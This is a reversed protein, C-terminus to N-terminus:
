ITRPSSRARKSLSTALRYRENHLCSPIPILKDLDITASFRGTKSNALLVEILPTSTEARGKLSIILELLKKPLNAIVVRKILFLQPLSINLNSVM